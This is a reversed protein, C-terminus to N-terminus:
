DLWVAGPFRQQLRQRLASRVELPRDQWLPAVLCDFYTRTCQRLIAGPVADIIDTVDMGFETLHGKKRMYASVSDPPGPMLILQDTHLFIVSSVTNRAFQFKMAVEKPYHSSTQKNIRVPSIATLCPVVNMEFDWRKLFESEFIKNLNKQVLEKVL